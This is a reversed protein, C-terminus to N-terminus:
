KEEQFVRQIARSANHRMEEENNGLHSEYVVVGASDVILQHYYELDIGETEDHLVDQMCQLPMCFKMNQVTEVCELGPNCEFRRGCRHGPEGNRRRQNNWLLKRDAKSLRPIEFNNNTPANSALVSTQLQQLVTLFFLATVATFVKTVSFSSALNTTMKIREQM